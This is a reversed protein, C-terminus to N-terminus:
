IIKAEEHLFKALDEVMETISTQIKRGAKRQPLPSVEKPSVKTELEVASIVIYPKKKAGMIGPLTPYRPENLGKQCTFLAPLPCEVVETGGEIQRHATAKRAPADIDLRTIVAVHPINLLEALQIGVAGNQDDVAEKGCLIIDFPHGKIAQSLLFAAAYSDVGLHSEGKIHIARDAGMALAAMLSEKAQEPGLSLVTIEGKSPLGGSAVKDLREKIRIAEEVAYEDFPNMILSLGTTDIFPPKPTPKPTSETSPVQKVCVFINM